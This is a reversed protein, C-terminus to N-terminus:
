KRDNKRMIACSVAKPLINFVTGSFYTQTFFTTRSYNDYGHKNEAYLSFHRSNNIDYGAYRKKNAM